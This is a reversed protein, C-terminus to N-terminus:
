ANDQTITVILEKGPEPAKDVGPTRFVNKDIYLAGVVPTVGNESEERYRFKNKTEAEFVFKLTQPKM